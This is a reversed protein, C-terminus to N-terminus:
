RNAESVRVTQITTKDGFEGKEVSTLRGKARGHRRLKRADRRSLHVSVDGGHGPRLTYRTRPHKRPRKSRRVLALSLSGECRADLSRPCHLHVPAGGKDGLRLSRGPIVVNPGEDVAGVTVRECSILVLGASTAVVDAFDLLDLDIRDAGTGCTSGLVVDLNGDRHLITDDGSGGVPIDMGLGGILLDNGSGGDLSDDNSGGDLSDNGGFGSLSDNGGNGTLTDAGSTGCLVDRGSTGNLHSGTQSCGYAAPAALALAALLVICGAGLRCIVSPSLKHVFGMTM